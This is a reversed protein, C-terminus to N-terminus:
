TPLLRPSAPIAAHHATAREVVVTLIQPRGVAVPVVGIITVVVPTKTNHADNIMVM